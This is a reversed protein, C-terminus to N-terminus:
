NFDSRIITLTIPVCLIDSYQELEEEGTEDLYFSEDPEVSLHHWKYADSPAYSRNNHLLRKFREIRESVLKDFVKKYDRRKEDFYWACDFTYERTEGDSHFELIPQEILYYRFYEGSTMQDPEFYKSHRIRGKFESTLLGRFADTITEAYNTYTITM